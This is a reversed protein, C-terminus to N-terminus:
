RGFVRRLADWIERAIEADGERDYAWDRDDAAGSMGGFIGFDEASAQSKPHHRPHDTRLYADVKELEGKDLWIGHCSECLDVEVGNLVLGKMGAACSPCAPPAPLSYVNRTKALDIGNAELAAQVTGSRLHIGGCAGCSAGQAAGPLPILTSQDRPCVPATEMTEEPFTDFRLRFYLM